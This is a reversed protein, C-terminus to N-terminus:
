KAAAMAADLIANGNMMGYDKMEIVLVPKEGALTKTKELLFKVQPGLMIVDAKSVNDKALADGVAWINVELAREKAAAEMKKVIISTSMGASCILLINTM